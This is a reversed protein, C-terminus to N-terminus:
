SLINGSNSKLVMNAADPNGSWFHYFERVVVLFLRRNQKINFLPLTLDMAVRYTKHNKEPASRLRILIIKALKSRTDVLSQEAGEQRLAQVYAKLPWNESADFKETLLSDTLSKLSAFNPKWQLVETEFGPNLNLAAIAKFDGLWFPYFERAATLSDHWDDHPVAEMIEEVVSRYDHGNHQKDSLAHALKDLFSSRSHLLASGAGKNQLLKLYASIAQKERM